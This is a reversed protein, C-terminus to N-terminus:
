ILQGWTGMLDPGESVVFYVLDYAPHGYNVLQYDIIILDKVAGDDDYAFM